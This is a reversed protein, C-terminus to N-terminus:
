EASEWVGPFPIPAVKFFKILENESFFSLALEQSRAFDSCSIQGCAASLSTMGWRCRCDGSILLLIKSHGLLGYRIISGAAQCFIASELAAPAGQLILLLISLMLRLDDSDDSDIADIADVSDDSVDM